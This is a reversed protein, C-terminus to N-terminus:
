SLCAVSVIDQTKDVTVGDMTSKCYLFNWSSRTLENNDFYFLLFLDYCLCPRSM